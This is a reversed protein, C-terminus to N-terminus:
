RNRNRTTPTAATKQENKLDTSCDACRDNRMATDQASKGVVDDSRLNLIDLAEHNIFFITLQSDLCIIPEDISNIITEIYRKSVRLKSLSSNHYDSLRTAMRNFNSSLQEMADGGRLHLRIDYNHNAIENIGKTLEQFPRTIYDPLKLLMWVGVSISLGGFLVLLILARTLGYDAVPSTPETATLIQLSIASLVVLGVILSVLIGVSLTLKEKTTM